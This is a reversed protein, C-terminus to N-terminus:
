WNKKGSSVPYFDVCALNSSTGVLPPIIDALSGKELLEFEAIGAPTIQQKRNVRFCAAYGRTDLVLGRSELTRAFAWLVGGRESVSVTSAEKGQQAEPPENGVYGDKGAADDAEMWKRWEMDEAIYFPLLDQETAGEYREPYVKLRRSIDERADDSSSVLFVRSGAESCYADAKPLYPLRQLLTQTRAGSILVLKVGRKRIERCQRLTEASIVGVTGTASAPLRLLVGRRDDEHQQAANGDDNYHVLTGDIDSFVLKLGSNESTASGHFSSRDLDNM